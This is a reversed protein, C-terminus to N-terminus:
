FKFNRYKKYQEINFLAEFVKDVDQENPKKAM